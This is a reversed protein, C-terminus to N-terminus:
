RISDGPGTRPGVPSENNHVLIRPASWVLLSNKRNHVVRKMVRESAENDLPVRQDSAFVCLEPWQSLATNVAAAIEHKPLLESKWQKM